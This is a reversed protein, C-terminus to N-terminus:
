RGMGAGFGNGAQPGMRGGPGGPGGPGMGPNSNDKPRILNDGNLLDKPYEPPQAFRLEENPPVAYEEPPKPPRVRPETSNCGTLGLLAALLLGLGSQLRRVGRM